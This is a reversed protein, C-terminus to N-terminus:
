IISVSRAILAVDEEMISQNNFDQSSIGNVLISEFNM